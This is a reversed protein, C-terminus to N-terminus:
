SVPMPTLPYYESINLFLQERVRIASVKALTRDTSYTNRLVWKPEYVPIGYLFAPDIWMRPHSKGAHARTRRNM